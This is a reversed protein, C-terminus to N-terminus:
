QVPLAGIRRYRNPTSHRSREMMPRSSLKAGLATSVAADTARAARTDAAIAPNVPSYDCDPIDPHNEDCPILVFDRTDGNPLSAIGNIEGLDNVYTAENLVLESDAPPAGRCTNVSSM